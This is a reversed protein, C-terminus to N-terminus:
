IMRYRHKIMSKATVITSVGSTTPARLQQLNM